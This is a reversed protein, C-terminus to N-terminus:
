LLENEMAFLAAAGRTSVGIKDYIHQLHHGVTRESIGLARATEKNILGRAACRLVEVERSSLAAPWQQRRQSRLGAAALVAEVANRDLLNAGVMARLEAAGKAPKLPERHARSESMAQYADAAALIREARSLVAGGVGRHYGSGNLREHHSAALAGLEALPESRALMRSTYYPHLRVREWESDTLPAPKDWISNPVGLRGLDQVFGAQRLRRTEAPSLGEVDGAGAALSAVRRSHGGTYASKLDAFDAFVELARDLDSGAVTTQPSPEVALAADWASTVDLQDFLSAARDVLVQAIAPDYAKGSRERARRVVSELGGEREFVVADQAVLVVRMPLAIRDGTVRNPFGKGDWREFAHWLASLVGPGLGLRGALGRGVECSARFQEEPEQRPGRSLAAALRGLRSPLAQGEGIHGLADLLVAKPDGLDILALRARAAQEDGYLRSAEHAHGSCGIWRLLATYYIDHLDAASLKLEAGIGIALLCTRLLYEMPQGLGLDTALSLAGILESLRVPREIESV